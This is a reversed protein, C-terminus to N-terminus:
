GASVVATKGKLAKYAAATAGTVLTFTLPAVILSTFLLYSIVLPNLLISLLSAKEVNFSAALAAINGGFVALAGIGFICVCLIGVIMAMLFAIIYGVLLTLGYGKTLSWSGFFNFRNQDFSQVYLLSLRLLIWLFVCIGAFIGVVVGVVILPKALLNLLFGLIGGVIGGALLCVMETAFTIFFFGIIMLVQRLEPWGLRVFGFGAKSDDLVSRYIACVVVARVLLGIPMMLWIGPDLQGYYQMFTKFTKPDSVLTPIQHILDLLQPGSVYFLIVMSAVHELLLIGGWFLILWPRQRIIRFGEFAFDVTLAM